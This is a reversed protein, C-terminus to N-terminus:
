REDYDSVRELITKWADNLENQAESDSSICDEIYCSLADHLVTLAEDLEINM